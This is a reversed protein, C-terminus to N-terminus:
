PLPLTMPCDESRSGSYPKEGFPGQRTAPLVLHYPYPQAHASSWFCLLSILWCSAWERSLKIIKKKKTLNNPM